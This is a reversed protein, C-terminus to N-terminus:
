QGGQMRCYEVFKRLAPRDSREDWAFTFLLTVPYSGNKINEDKPLIAPSSENKRVALVKVSSLNRSQPVIGLPLDDAAGCIKLITEWSETFVTAKGFAEGDMVTNWFFVAGGSEPIRRSLCRVPADPGGVQNWNAYSGTYMKRAQELTLENLPNRPHTVLAVAAMGIPKEGLKLGKGNAKERESPSIARSMMAIDCGGDILAQFGKGASSGTVVVRIDPNTEMFRKAWKDVIDSSMAAGAVKLLQQGTEQAAVFQSSSLLLSLVCISLAQALVRKM